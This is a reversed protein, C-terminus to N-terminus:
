PYIYRKNVFVDEFAVKPAEVSRHILTYARDMSEPKTLAEKDLIMEQEVILKREQVMLPTFVEKLKLTVVKGIDQQYTFRLWGHEDELYKLYKDKLFNIDEEKSLFDKQPSEKQTKPYVYVFAKDRRTTGFCNIDKKLDQPLPQYINEIILFLNEPCVNIIHGLHDLDPSDIKGTDSKYETETCAAAMKISLNHEFRLIQWIQIGLAVVEKDKNELQPAFFYGWIGDGLWTTKHLYVEGGCREILDDVTWRYRNRLEEAKIKPLDQWLKTSGTLDIALISLHVKDKEKFGAMIKEGTGIMGIEHLIKTHRGDSIPYNMAFQLIIMKFKFNVNQM